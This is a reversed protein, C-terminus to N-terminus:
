NVVSLRTSHRDKSTPHKSRYKASEAGSMPIGFEITNALRGWSDGFVAQFVGRDKLVKAMGIWVTTVVAMVMLTELIAQGSSKPRRFTKKM